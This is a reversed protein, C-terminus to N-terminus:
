FDSEDKWQTIRWKDDACKRLSFVARGTMKYDSGDDGILTLNFSQGIEGSVENHWSFLISNWVLDVLQFHRFMGGTSKLDDERGWSNLQGTYPDLYLFLFSSDLQNSYLLSDRFIYAIRFNQMVEEPSRQDTVILDGSELSRTLKPAFPNVCCVFLLLAFLATQFFWLSRKSKVVQEKDDNGAYSFRGFSNLLKKKM